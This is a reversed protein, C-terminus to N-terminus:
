DECLRCSSRFVSACHSGSDLPRGSCHCLQTPQSFIINKRESFIAFDLPMGLLLESDRMKSFDYDPFSENMARELESGELLRSHAFCM